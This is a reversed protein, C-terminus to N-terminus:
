RVDPDAALTEYFERSLGGEVISNERRNRELAAMRLIGRTDASKGWRSTGGRAAKLLSRSREVVSWSRRLNKATGSKSLEELLIRGRGDKETTTIEYTSTIEMNQFPREGYTGREDSNDFSSVLTTPDKLTGRQTKRDGRGGLDKIRGLLNYKRPV